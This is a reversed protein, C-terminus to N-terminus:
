GFRHSRVCSGRCWKANGPSAGCECDLLLRTTAGGGSIAGLGHFTANLGSRDLTFPGMNPVTPPPTPALVVGNTLCRPGEAPLALTKIITTGGREASSAGLAWQQSPLGDCRYLGIAPGKGGSSLDLCASSNHALSLFRGLGDM